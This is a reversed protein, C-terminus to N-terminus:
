ILCSSSENRFLHYSNLLGVFGRANISVTSGNQSLEFCTGDQPLRVKVQSWARVYMCVCVCVCVV